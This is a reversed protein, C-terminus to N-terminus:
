RSVRAPEFEVVKLIHQEDGELTYKIRLIHDQEIQERLYYQMEVESLIQYDNIFEM